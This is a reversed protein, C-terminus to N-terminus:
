LDENGISIIKNNKIVIVGDKLIERSENMTLITGNKIIINASEKQNVLSSCGAVFLSGVILAGKLYTKM